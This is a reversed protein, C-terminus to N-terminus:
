QRAQTWWRVVASAAEPPLAHMATAAEAYRALDGAALLATAEAWADADVPLPVDRVLSASVRVAGPSLGSGAARTAAWAAVPPACLAAALRDVDAPDHPVASVVPTCPVWAGTRDAAAELVRTQSAVVVKPQQIRDLWPGMRPDGARVADVDVAPRDWRRRAFRAPRDGWACAGVDLLGSTVLVPGARDGGEHVHGVLAYYHQRFGAVAVAREGVTGARASLAVVPVGRGRALRAAWDADDGGEGVELVPVCVHVNAAFPQGAPLALEVLRARAAIAERVARADRASATSQPQVLAVRGGDAALEVAVLLFLAATDVYPAAAAGFRTRAALRAEAGRATDQALQGQFPPNGVVRDFGAGPATPWAAAGVLLPDAAVLHGAAPAVGGSWLALAAEAVAVALPDVDAGFLQDRAVAAPDTGSAALRRAAALLMAGGGCAPDAVTAAGHVGALAVVEDALAAPSYHAGQRREAQSLRGELADVLAAAPDAVAVVVPGGRRGGGPRGGALAWLRLDDPLAVGAAAALGAAEAALARAREDGAV